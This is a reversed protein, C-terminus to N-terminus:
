VNPDVLPSLHIFSFKHYIFTKDRCHQMRQIFSFLLSFRMYTSSIVRMGKNVFSLKPGWKQCLMVPKDHYYDPNKGSETNIHFNHAFNVKEKMLSWANLDGQMSLVTNSLQLQNLILQM